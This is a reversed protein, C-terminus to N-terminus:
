VAGHYDARDRAIREDLRFRGEVIADHLLVFVDNRCQYSRGTRGGLWISCAARRAFQAVEPVSGEFSVQITQRQREDGPISAVRSHGNPDLAIAGAARDLRPVSNAM